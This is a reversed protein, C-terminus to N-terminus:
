VLLSEIKMEDGGRARLCVEEFAEQNLKELEPVHEVLFAQLKAEDQGDILEELTKLEEDSLVGMIKEFLAKHLFAPFDAIIREQEEYSRGSIGLKEALQTFLTPDM